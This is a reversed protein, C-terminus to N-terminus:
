YVDSLFSKLAENASEPRELNSSHGADEIVRLEADPLGEVTERADEVTISVDQDGHLALVPLTIEDLRDTVDDRHLWSEVENVVAEPPYSTWRETWDEVLEP